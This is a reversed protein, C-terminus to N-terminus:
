ETFIRKYWPLKEPQIGYGYSYGYSYGYGVRSPNTDNLLICMNTLKNEKYLANAMYLMKKELFNARVLYVFSDAFKSILLTDTVLNVPSTDVVIYDYQLKLSKFLNEVKEGMLLEAPNPPIVGSPLIDFNKFGEQKLILDEIKFDNSSLYNTIGRDDPLSIYENLKPNRIDMSMLLVKKGTLAFTAALNVSVFTKGEKAFTSTLFITKAQGVPVNSLMFELNTSIIRLAEASSSRSESRMIENPTDSKPLDGIFPIKTKELVDFRTKIKNDLLDILYFFSLPIFLGLLLAVLYITNKNPLVPIAMSRPADIIKANSITASLSVASEERKQLLYLYLGEKVKQQRAIIKFERDMEPIKEMKTSLVSKNSHLDSKQKNLNNQFRNLSTVINSKLSTIQQELRILSPNEETASKLIRSRDLILQNYSNVLSSIDSQGSIISNPLLDSFTSKKIYDLMTPIINLQVDIDNIKKEYEVSEQNLLNTETEIDLSVNNSKKFSEQDQEVGDLEQTVVKLRNAIFESTKEFILNNDAIADDNYNKIFTSLFIEARSTLPDVISVDLFGATSKTVDIKIRNRYNDVVNDFPTVVISLQRKERINQDSKNITLNGYKTKILEGYRFLKKNSLIIKSSTNEPENELIFTNLNQELFKLNVNAYYFSKNLNSFKVRIPSNQFLNTDLIRGKVLVSVNLNLMKVTKEVLTRSKLIEIENNINNNIKDILGMDSFAALEPNIEGKTDKLMITTSAKYSPTTYYRIYIFALSLCIFVSLFFWNWKRIFYGLITNINFDELPNENSLNNEM